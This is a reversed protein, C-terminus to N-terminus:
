LWFTKFRFEKGILVQFRVQPALRFAEADAARESATIEQLEELLFLLGADEWPTEADPLWGERM